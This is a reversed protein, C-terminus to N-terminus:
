LSLNNVLANQKVSERRGERAHSYMHINEIHTSLLFLLPSPPLPHFLHRGLDTYPVFLRRTLLAAPIFFALTSHHPLPSAPNHCLSLFSHILHPNLWPFLLLVSASHHLLCISKHHHTLLLCYLASCIFSTSCILSLM